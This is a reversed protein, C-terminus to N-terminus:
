ENGEAPSIWSEVAKVTADQTVPYKRARFLIAIIGDIVVNATAREVSCSVYRKTPKILETRAIVNDDTDILDIATNELDAQDSGNAAAGQRTKVQATGTATITGFLVIFEVAEFGAMDVVSSDVQDGTGAAVANKARIAKTGQAHSKM